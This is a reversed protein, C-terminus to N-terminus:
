WSKSPSPEFTGQRFCRSALAERAAKDSIKKVNEDKCNEATAEPVHADDPEKSCGMLVMLMCFWGLAPRISHAKM